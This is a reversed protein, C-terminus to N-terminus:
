IILLVIALLTGLTAFGLGFSALKSDNKEPPAGDKGGTGSARAIKREQDRTLRYVVREVTVENGGEDVARLVLRNKGPTALTLVKKDDDFELTIGSRSVFGKKQNDATPSIPPAKKSSHLM